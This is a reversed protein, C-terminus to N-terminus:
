FNILTKIKEIQDIQRNIPLRNEIYLIEGTTNVVDPETLSNITLGTVSKTNNTLTSSSNIIPIIPLLYVQNLDSKIQAVIFKGGGNSLIVDDNSYQTTDTVEVVYCTTGTDDGFNAFNMDLPNKVIGLQRYDNNVFYDATDNTLNVTIGVTTAFLEKPPNAGHGYYPSVTATAAAGFGIGLINTFTVDAFTYGTGPNTVDVRSIKGLDDVFAIAEAGTGDGSITVLVDGQTYNDGVSTLNIRDVTGPVAAAEISEQILSVPVHGLSAVATAGTGTGNDVIEVRAFTYGYGQNTLNIDTIQDTLTDIVVEATAGVGDGQILVLPPNLSDYNSGGNTVTIDDVFGNVDYLPVGVGAMKRVPIYDTTLFKLQDSAEVNFMYKWVYGDPQVFPNSTDTSNPKNYSPSNNNNNLCKYVRMDETLVYFDKTTLDETDDYHDYVTGAVWDIRRAMLVVDTSQIRKVFMMNRHTQGNYVETDQPDEPTGEIPWETTKGVFLYFFDNENVIDRYFSRALENRALKRLILPM